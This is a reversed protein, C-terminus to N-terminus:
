VGKERNALYYLAAEAPPALIKGDVVNLTKRDGQGWVMSRETGPEPTGTGAESGGGDQTVDSIPSWPSTGDQKGSELSMTRAEPDAASM